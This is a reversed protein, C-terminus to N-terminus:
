EKQRGRKVSLVSKARNVLEELDSVEDISWGKTKITIFPGEEESLQFELGITISEQEETTGLTNGDQCFEVSVKTIEPKKIPEEKM